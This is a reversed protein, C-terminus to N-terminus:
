EREVEGQVGGGGLWKEPGFILPHFPLGTKLLGFCFCVSFGWEFGFLVSPFPPSFCYGSEM